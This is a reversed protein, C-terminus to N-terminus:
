WKMVARIPHKIGVVPVKMGVAVTAVGCGGPQIITSQILDQRPILIERNRWRTEVTFGVGVILWVRLIELLLEMFVRHTRITMSIAIAITM